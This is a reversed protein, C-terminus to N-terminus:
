NQVMLLVKLGVFDMIKDDRTKTRKYEFVFNEIQQMKLTKINEVKPRNKRNQSQTELLQLAQEM